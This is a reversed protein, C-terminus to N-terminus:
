RRRDVRDNIRRLSAEITAQVRRTEEEHALQVVSKGSGGGFISRLGLGGDHSPLDVGSSSGLPPAFMAEYKRLLQKERGVYSDLEADVLHLRSHASVRM